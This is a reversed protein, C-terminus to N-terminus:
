GAINWLFGPPAEDGKGPRGTFDKALVNFDQPRVSRCRDRKKGSMGPNVLDVPRDVPQDPGLQARAKTGADAATGAAV